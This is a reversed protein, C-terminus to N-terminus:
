NTKKMKPAETTMHDEIAELQSRIWVLHRSVRTFALGNPPCGQPPLMLLGTLFATGREMTAVPMGSLVGGCPRDRSKLALGGESQTRQSQNQHYRRRQESRSRMCFMKNNLPLSVNLQRRCEDLSMYVLNQDLDQNMIAAVGVRGSNMLINESFDKTPLCLHLQSTGLSLPHTLELFALNYDPQNELYRKHIYFAKVSMVTGRNGTVVLFNSPQPDSEQLLCQASILVSRRGLLVGACLEEGGSDLLVAQWPCNGHHCMPASTPPGPLRGCPFEVEPLCTQEDSQLRFGEVCSCSFRYPTVTCLQHCMNPGGTPCPMMGAALRPRKQVEADDEPSNMEASAGLQCFAGYHPPRCSCNFGGVKDTCNGGHLCPNPVCQDGDFYVTWFALTKANDEFYELAEEYTCREEYCERELNGQLIEELLFMNARKSRLFIDSAAPARVFVDGQGQVQLGCTLLTLWLVSMQPLVVCVAM